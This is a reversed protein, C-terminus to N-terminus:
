AIQYCGSLAKNGGGGKQSAHVSKFYQSNM